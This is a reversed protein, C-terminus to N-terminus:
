LSSLCIPSSDGAGKQDNDPYNKGEVPARRGQEGTREVGLRQTVTILRKLFSSIHVWEVGVEIRTPFDPHPDSSRDITPTLLAHLFRVGVHKRDIGTSRIKFGRWLQASGDTKKRKKKQDLPPFNSCLAHNAVPPRAALRSNQDEKQFAFQLEKGQAESYVKKKQSEIHRQAIAGQGHHISLRYWFIPTPPTQLAGKSKFQIVGHCFM